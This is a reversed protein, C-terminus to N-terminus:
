CSDKRSDLKKIRRKKTPEDLQMVWRLAAKWISIPKGDTDNVIVRGAEIPEREEEVVAQLSRYIPSLLPPDSKVGSIRLERIVHKIQSEDLGICEEQHKRPIRALLVAQRFSIKGLDFLKLVAPKLKQMQCVQTVWAVSKGLVSAIMRVDTNRSMRWLRRALESDLTRIRQINAAVQASLVEEDTMDRVTCEITEHKFNKCVTFRHAGDVVEYGGFRASPRVLIAQLLGARQISHALQIFELTTERVPRLQFPSLSIESIRLLM